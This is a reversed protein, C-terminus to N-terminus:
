RSEFSRRASQAQLEIGVWGVIRRGEALLLDLGPPRVGTQAMTTHLSQFQILLSTLQLAVRQAPRIPSM